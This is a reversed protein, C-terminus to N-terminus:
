FYVTPICKVDLVRASLYVAVCGKVKVFLVMFSIVFVCDPGEGGSSINLEDDCGGAGDGPVDCSPSSCAIFAAMCSEFIRGNPEGALLFFRLHWCFALLMARLPRGEATSILLMVAYSRRHLAISSSSWSIELSAAEIRQEGFGPLSLFRWCGQRGDGGHGAFAPCLKVEALNSKCGSLFTRKNFFVEDAKGFERLRWWSLRVILLESSWRTGRSLVWIVLRWLPFVAKNYSIGREKMRGCWLVQWRLLAALVVSFLVCWIRGIPDLM